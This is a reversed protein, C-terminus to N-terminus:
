ALAYGPDLRLAHDFNEIARAYDGVDYYVSGRSNCALVLVPDLRLAQDLDEIAQATDSGRRAALM